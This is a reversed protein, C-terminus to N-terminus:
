CVSRPVGQHTRQRQKRLGLLVSSLATYAKALPRLAFPIQGSADLQGRLVPPALEVFSMSVTRKGGQLLDWVESWLHRRSAFCCM